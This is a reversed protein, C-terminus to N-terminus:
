DPLSEPSEAASRCSTVLLHIECQVLLLGLELGEAPAEGGLDNSRYGGLV